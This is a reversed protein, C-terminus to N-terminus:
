VNQDLSLAHAIFVIAVILVTIESRERKKKEHTKKEGLLVKGLARFKQM